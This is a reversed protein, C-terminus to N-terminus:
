TQWNSLTMRGYLMAWMKNNSTQPQILATTLDVWYGQQIWVLSEDERLNRRSTVSMTCSQPFARVTTRRPVGDEADQVNGAMLSAWSQETGPLSPPVFVRHMKRWLIEGSDNDNGSLINPIVPTRTPGPATIMKCKVVAHVLTLMKPHDSAGESPQILYDYQARLSRFKLGRTMGQIQSGLQSFQGGDLLVTATYIPAGSEDATQLDCLAEINFGTNTVLGVGVRFNCINVPVVDPVTRKAFTRRFPRRFKRRFAM